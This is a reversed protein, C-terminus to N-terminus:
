FTIEVEIHTENCSQIPVAAAGASLVRPPAATCKTTDIAPDIVARSADLFIAM